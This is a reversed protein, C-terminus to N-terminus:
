GRSRGVGRNTSSQNPNAVTGSKFWIGARKRVGGGGRGKKSICLDYM